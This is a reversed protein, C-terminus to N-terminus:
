YSADFTSFPSYAHSPINKKINLIYKLLTAPGGTIHREDVSPLLLNLRKIKPQNDAIIKFPKIIHFYSNRSFTMQLIFYEDNIKNSILFGLSGQRICKCENCPFPLEGRPSRNIRAGRMRNNKYITLLSQEYINGHGHLGHDDQNCLTVVGDAHVRAAFWQKCPLKKYALDNCDGNYSGIKSVWQFEELCVSTFKPYRKQCFEFFDKDAQTGDRVRTLDVKITSEPFTDHLIDLNECTVDFDLGMTNYYKDPCTENLSVSIHKIRVNYLWNLNHSLTYGNTYMSISANKINNCAYQFFDKARKDILAESLGTFQLNFSVPIQKLEDLIEYVKETDIKNHKRAIDPYSCFSCKANCSARTEITVILPYDIYANQEIKDTSAYRLPLSNEAEILEYDPQENTNYAENESSM